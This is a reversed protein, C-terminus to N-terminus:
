MDQGLRDVEALLFDVDCKKVAPNSIINRFFNPINGQPQYGIMLTGSEMM